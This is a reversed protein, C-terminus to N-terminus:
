DDFEGPLPQVKKGPQGTKEQIAEYLEYAAQLAPGLKYEQGLCTLTWTEPDFVRLREKATPIITGEMSGVGRDSYRHREEEAFWDDAKEDFHELVNRLDRKKLVSDDKVDLFTRLEKRRSEYKKNTPWLIKSINGLAIVLSQLYYYERDLGYNDTTLCKKFDIKAMRVFMCQEALEHIFFFTATSMM